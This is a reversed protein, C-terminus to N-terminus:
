PVCIFVFFASQVSSFLWIEYVSSNCNDVKYPFQAGNDGSHHENKLNTFYPAKQAWLNIWSFAAKYVGKNRVKTVRGEGRLTQAGDAAKITTRPVCSWHKPSTPYRGTETRSYAWVVFISVEGRKLVLLDILFTMVESETGLPQSLM